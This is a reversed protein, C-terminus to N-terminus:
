AQSEEQFGSRIHNAKSPTLIEEASQGGAPSRALPVEVTILTGAGLHSEVHFQGGLLAVREQMSQLGIREGPGDGPRPASPDFGRGWDRVALRVEDGVRDLTVRVRRSDAHRRVNTLAEQTIRFLATEVAVPLREDDDLNSEYGVRWGDSRLREAEQRLATRLGFDDLATPRLDAIM